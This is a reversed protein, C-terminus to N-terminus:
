TVEITQNTQASYEYLLSAQTDYAGKTTCLTPPM